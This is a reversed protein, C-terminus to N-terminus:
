RPTVFFLAQHNVRAAPTLRLRSRLSPRVRSFPLQARAQCGRPLRIGAWIQSLHEIPGVIVELGLLSRLLRDMLRRMTCGDAASFLAVGGM